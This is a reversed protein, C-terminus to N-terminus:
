KFASRLDTGIWSLWEPRNDEIMPNMYDRKRIWTSRNRGTWGGFIHIRAYPVGRSQILAQWGRAVKRAAVHIWSRLLNGAGVRLNAGPNKVWKYGDAKKPTFTGGGKLYDTKLQKDADMAIRTLTEPITSVIRTRVEQMRQGSFRGYRNISLRLM